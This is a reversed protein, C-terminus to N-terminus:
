IYKAVYSDGNFEINYLLQVLPINADEAVKYMCMNIQTIHLLM